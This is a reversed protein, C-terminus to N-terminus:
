NTQKKAHTQVSGLSYSLGVKQLRPTGRTEGVSHAHPCAIISERGGCEHIAGDIATTMNKPRSDVILLGWLARHAKRGVSVELVVATKHNVCANHHIMRIERGSAAWHDIHRSSTRCGGGPHVNEQQIEDRVDPFGYCGQVLDCTHIM